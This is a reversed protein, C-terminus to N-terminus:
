SVLSALVWCFLGATTLAPWLGWRPADPHRHGLAAFATAILFLVAGILRLWDHIGHVTM